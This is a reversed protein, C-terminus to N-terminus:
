VIFTERTVPLPYCDPCYPLPINWGKDGGELWFQMPLYRLASGCNCCHRTEPAAVSQANLFQKLSELLEAHRGTDPIRM